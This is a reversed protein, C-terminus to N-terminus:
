MKAVPFPNYLANLPHLMDVIDRHEKVDHVRLIDAGKALSFGHVALTAALTDEPLKGLTKQIFSKRSAGILVRLNFSKFQDIAHLLLYNQEVTKGFGIGPDLIMREPKVGRNVLEQIRKEFFRMVHVVVGEPYEPHMQMTQPTGLMHMICLDADCGAALEQMAPDSFGSIDNILSAGLEVARAAVQAKRTDISIPISLQPMLAEILPLVRRLEEELPVPEAWPRASEGGIDLIDAGEQEIQLGRQVAKHFSFYSGKDYYSDPTANLIGMVLPRQAEDSM